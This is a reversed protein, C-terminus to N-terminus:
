TDGHHAHNHKHTTHTAIFIVVEQRVHRSVLVRALRLQEEDLQWLVDVVSEDKKEIGNEGGTRRIGGRGRM